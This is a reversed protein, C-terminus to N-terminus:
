APYFFSSLIWLIFSLIAHFAFSLFAIGLVLWWSEKRAEGTARLSPIQKQQTENYWLYIAVPYILTALYVVTFDPLFLALLLSLIGIGTQGIFGVLLSNKYFENNRLRKYNIAIIVAGSLFGGLITSLTAQWISFFRILEKEKEKKEINTFLSEKQIAFEEKTIIEDDLLSKMQKIRLIDKDREEETHTISMDLIKKTRIEDEPTPIYFYRAIWTGIWLIVYGILPAGLFFLTVPVSIWWKQRLIATSIISFVSVFAGIFFPFVFVMFLDFNRESEEVFIIDGSSIPILMLLFWCIVIIGIISLLLLLVFNKRISFNNKSSSM